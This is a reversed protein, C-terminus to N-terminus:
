AGPMAGDPMEWEPEDPGTPASPEAPACVVADGDAGEQGGPRPVNIGPAEDRLRRAQDYARRIQALLIQIRVAFGEDADVRDAVLHEAYTVTSHDRGFADALQLVSQGTLARAVYMAVHRAESIRKRQSVSLLSTISVGFVAATEALILELPFSDFREVLPHDKQLHETIESAQSYIRDVCIPCAYVGPGAVQNKARPPGKHIMGGPPAGKDGYLQGHARLEHQGRGWENRDSGGSCGPKRCPFKFASPAEGRVVKRARQDAAYRQATQRECERCWSAWRSRRPRKATLGVQRYHDLDLPQDLGCKTCVKSAPSAPPTALPFTGGTDGAVTASDTQTGQAPRPDPSVVVASTGTEGPAARDAGHSARETGSTPVPRLAAGRRGEPWLVKPDLMLAVAMAEAVWRPLEGLTYRTATIANILKFAKPLDFDGGRANAERVFAAAIGTIGMPDRTSHRQRWLALRLPEPDICRMAPDFDQPQASM